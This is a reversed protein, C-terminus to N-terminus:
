FDTPFSLGYVFSGLNIKRGRKQSFLHYEELFSFECLSFALIARIRLYPNQIPKLNASLKSQGFSDSISLFDYFSFHQWKHLSHYHFTLYLYFSNRFHFGGYLSFCSWSYKGLCYCPPTFFYWIHSQHHNERPSMSLFRQNWKTAQVRSDLPCCGLYIRRSLLRLYPLIHYRHPPSRLLIFHCLPFLHVCLLSILSTLWSSLYISTPAISSYSYEVSHSLSPWVWM